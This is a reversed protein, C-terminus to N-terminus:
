LEWSKSESKKKIDVLSLKIKEDYNRVLNHFVLKYTMFWLIGNGCIDFKVQKVFEILSFGEPLGQMNVGEFGEFPSLDAGPFFPPSQEMVANSDGESAAGDSSYTDAKSGDNFGWDQYKDAELPVENELSLGLGREEDEEM